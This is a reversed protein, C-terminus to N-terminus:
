LQGGIASTRLSTTTTGATGQFARINQEELKKRRQSAL